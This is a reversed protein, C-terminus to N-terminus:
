FFYHAIVELHPTLLYDSKYYQPISTLEALYDIDSELECLIDLPDNSLLTDLHAQYQLSASKQRRNTAM